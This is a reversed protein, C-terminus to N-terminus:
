TRRDSPQPTPNMSCVASLTWQLVVAKLHAWPRQLVSPLVSGPALGKGGQHGTAHKHGCPSRRAAQVPVPSGLTREWGGTPRVSRSDM